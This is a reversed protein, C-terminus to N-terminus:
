LLDLLRAQRRVTASTNFLPADPNLLALEIAAAQRQRQFGNKLVDICATRSVPQGCLLRQGAPYKEQNASWWGSILVPDPWPLDEDTDMAVNEDEPGETPGAEFGDPWDGDLDDYALDVGTIQSVAEGVVRALEPDEMKSILWPISVPDGIIGAACIVSRQQEPDGAFERIWQMAADKGMVRLVISLASDHLKGEKVVFNKLVDIGKSDGLLALSWAAWFRCQDDEDALHELVSAALDCRRIEGVCRLARARVWQDQDGIGQQLYAGCDVRQIACSSIGLLRHLAEESKLWDVVLGQLKEKPVWGLASVLGRSTEPASEVVDLTQSLWDERSNDLAMYGAAFVEGVEGQSLGEQCFAWAADGAVRLGDLHAEIRGELTKLDNLTYHPAQVADDRLLWLFASEEAHQSVIQEIIM